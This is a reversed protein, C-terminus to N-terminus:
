LLNVRKKGEDESKLAPINTTVFNYGHVNFIQAAGEMLFRAGIM